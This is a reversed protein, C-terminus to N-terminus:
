LKEFNNKIKRSKCETFYISRERNTMSNLCCFSFINLVSLHIMYRGCVSAFKEIADDMTEIMNFSHFLVALQCLDYCVTM